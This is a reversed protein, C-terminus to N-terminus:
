DAPDFSDDEARSFVFGTVGNDALTEVDDIQLGDNAPAVGATSKATMSYVQVPNATNGPTYIVATSGVM